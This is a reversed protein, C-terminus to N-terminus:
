YARLGAIYLILVTITLGTWGIYRSAIEWDSPEAHDINRVQFSLNWRFLEDAFLISVTTLASLLIGMFWALWHGKKTLEPGDTLSLIDEASPETPDIIEGNEGIITGDSMTATINFGAFSGDENVMLLFSDAQYVGGRFVITEGCKIEIGRMRESMEDEEPIASPDETVTYPGYVKEDCQFTVIKDATVTFRCDHGNIKGSYITNGNEETPQLIADKYLFGVRSTVIGYIVGFLVIMVALLLLIGKQYRDLNKVREM